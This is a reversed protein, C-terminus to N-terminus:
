RCARKYARRHHSKSSSVFVHYSKAYSWIYTLLLFSMRITYIFLSRPLQYRCLRIPCCCRQATICTLLINRLWQITNAYTHTNTHPSVHDLGIMRTNTESLTHCLIINLVPSERNILFYSSYLRKLASSVCSVTRRKPWKLSLIRVRNGM